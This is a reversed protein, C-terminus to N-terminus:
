QFEAQAGFGHILVLIDKEEKNDWYEIHYDKSILNLQEFGHKTYKSWIYKKAFSYIDIM